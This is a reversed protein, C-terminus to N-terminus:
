INKIISVSSKLREPTGIDIFNGSCYYGYINYKNEGLIKPFFDYEFSYPYYEIHKILPKKILYMGANILDTKAYNNQSPKEHFHVILKKKNMVVSGFTTKDNTKTVAMACDARKTYYFEIFENLRINLYSDGNIILLDDSLIKKCANKIAGATGLPEAENSFDVNLNGNYSRHIWKKVQNNKYGTCLIVNTIKQTELYKLLYSIFPV